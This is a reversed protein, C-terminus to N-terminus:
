EEEEKSPKESSSFALIGGIITLVWGTWVLHSGQLEHITV